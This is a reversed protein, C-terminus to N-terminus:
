DTFGKYTYNNSVDLNHFGKSTPCSESYDSYYHFQADEICFKAGATTWEGGIENYGYWYITNRTFSAPLNITSSNGSPINVWGIIEWGRDYFAYAIWATSSSNNKFEVQKGEEVVPSEYAADDEVPSKKPPTAEVPYPTDETGTSDVALTDVFGTTDADIYGEDSSNSNSSAGKIILGAIVAIIIFVILPLKTNKKIVREQPVQNQLPSKTQVVTKSETIPTERKSLYGSFKECNQFREEKNKSTAKLIVKDLFIPVGPYLSSANPLPESVIKSYVEFETTMGDYPSIGTLMQYFTVGLSYIDSRIDIDKGQVQEPSMYFVTGMQTGTKTLKNGAESLLKAIGFDLIKIEDRDSIIINSPKIDRHVIGKSHAYSFADLIQIMMPIATESPIPGSKERIYEDLPLGEVYEMVLYLGDSEEVYDYLAVIKPHQLHAMTSAENKFRARLGENKVLQPHLSKVAVKRGLQTHEALYVNGMGGEGLLKKIEYNLIRKGIM